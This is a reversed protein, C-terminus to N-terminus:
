VDCIIVFDMALVISTRTGSRSNLQMAYSKM